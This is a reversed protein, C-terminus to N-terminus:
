VGHFSKVIEDQGMTDFDDPIKAQGRLFGMARSAEGGPGDIAVVRVLPTGAVAIVFPEGKVAQDILDSLHMEAEQLDVIKM